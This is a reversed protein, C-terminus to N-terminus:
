ILTNLDASNGNTPCNIIEDDSIKIIFCLVYKDLIIKYSESFNNKM